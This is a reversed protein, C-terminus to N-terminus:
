STLLQATQKRSASLMFLDLLIIRDTPADIGLFLSKSMGIQHDGARSLLTILLVGTIAAEVRVMRLDHWRTDVASTKM